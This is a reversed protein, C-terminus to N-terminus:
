PYILPPHIQLYFFSDLAISISRAQGLTNVVSTILLSKISTKNQTSTHTHTHETKDFVKYDWPGYGVLLRQEHFKGTFFVPTPKWKRRWSIKRVWLHFGCPWHRRCQYTSEKGSWWRSALVSLSLTWTNSFYSLSATLIKPNSFQFCIAAKALFPLLPM